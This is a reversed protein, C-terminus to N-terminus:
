SSDHNLYLSIGYLFDFDVKEVEVKENEVDVDDVVLEATIIIILQQKLM